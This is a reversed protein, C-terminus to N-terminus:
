DILDQVPHEIPKVKEYEGKNAKIKEDIEEVATNDTLMRRCKFEVRVSIRDFPAQDRSKLCQFIARGLKRLDDDIWAATVIDSSRECNHSLFPGTQFEHDGEVELDYVHEERADSEILKVQSVRRVLMERLLGVRPDEVGVEGMVRLLTVVAGHSVVGDTRASRMANYHSKKLRGSTIMSYPTYDSAVASFLHGMPYMRKDKPTEVFTTELMGMKHPESFGIESQFQRKSETNRIRLTWGAYTKGTAVLTTKNPELVTDIGLATMLTQVERLFRENKM